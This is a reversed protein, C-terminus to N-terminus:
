DACIAERTPASMPAAARVAARKDKWMRLYDAARQLRDADDKFYGLGANCSNCLLGRVMKTKHDHDVSCARSKFAKPGAVEVPLFADGCAACKGGQERLMHEFTELSLGYVSKLHNRKHYLRDKARGEPTANSLRGAEAERDRDAQTMTKRKARRKEKLDESHRARFAKEYDSKKKKYEPDNKNADRYAKGELRLKERNRERYRADARKAAETKM